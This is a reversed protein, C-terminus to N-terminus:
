LAVDGDTCHVHTAPVEYNWNTGKVISNWQATTGEFNISELTNSKEFASNGITIVGALITVSILNSCHCFAYDKIVTIGSPIELATVLQGNLYLNKACPLPNASANGFEINCWAALDTIYVATLSLCQFFAYNGISTVGEPITVSTLDDREYFAYKYVEYNNGKCNAPLTLDTDTGTYGMLYCDTGDDYFIYGNSDTFLKSEVDTSTYVNKAYYGVQGYGWSGAEVNLSSLNYIEILKYCNSFANKSISTVSAPITISTLGSCAYFAEEGISTLKSNAGFNVTTLKSCDYFAEYDISTVSDPITITTLSDCNSFAHDGISTVSGDTPIVSNKCGAILIKSATKIICNGASHYVTNGREVTMSTFSPCRDFAGDGISTVGAPITISTLSSCGNFAWNGISTLQNNAGFEVTTLNECMNFAHYDISTVSDPITITTLSDCNSFAWDGISTVGESITITMLNNCHQFAGDGISTVSVPITVSTAGYFGYFAYNKIRTVGNPIGLHTTLNGNIYLNKAYRLPNANDNAFEINCWTALDTIYVTALNYCGNFAYDGISTLQSNAGFEVTTLSDCYSFAHEGISTMGTPITISKLSYCNRFAGGGISTVSAPIAISTMATCNAFAYDGIRVITDPIKPAKILNPNEQGIGLCLLENVLSVTDIGNIGTKIAGYEVKTKDIVSVEYGGFDEKYIYVYDEDAAIRNDSALVFNTAIENIFIEGESITGTLTGVIPSVVTITNGSVSYTAESIDGSPTGIIDMTGDERIFVSENEGFMPVYATYPQNYYFGHENLEPAAVTFGGKVTKSESAVAVEYSGVNLTKLYDIPFTVITSGEELTYNSPDVTIGNIQVSQLENLPATSRFSLPTPALTYYEGGDGELREEMMSALHAELSATADALLSSDISYSKNNFKINLNAM